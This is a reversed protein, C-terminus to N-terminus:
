ILFLLITFCALSDNVSQLFITLLLSIMSFSFGILTILITSFNRSKFLCSFPLPRGEFNAVRRLINVGSCVRSLNGIARACAFNPLM